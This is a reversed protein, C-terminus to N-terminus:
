GIACMHAYMRECVTQRDSHAAHLFGIYDHNSQCADKKDKDMILNAQHIPVASTKTASGFLVCEISIFVPESSAM